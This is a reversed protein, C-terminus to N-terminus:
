RKKTALCSFKKLLPLVLLFSIYFWPIYWYIAVIDYTSYIKRIFDYASIEKNYIKGYYCYFPISFVIYLIIIRLIELFHKKYDYKDIDKKNNLRVAGTLLIFMTDSCNTIIYRFWYWIPKIIPFPEAIDKSTLTHGNIQLHVLIVAFIAM